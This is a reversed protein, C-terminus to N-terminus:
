DSSHFRHLMAVSVLELLEPALAKPSQTSLVIRMGDHRM